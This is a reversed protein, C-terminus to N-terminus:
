KARVGPFLETFAAVLGRQRDLNLHKDIRNLCRSGRKLDEGLQGATTTSCSSSPTWASSPALPGFCYAWGALARWADHPNSQERGKPLGFDWLGEFERGGGNCGHRPTELSTPAAINTSRLPHWKNGGRLSACGGTGGAHLCLMLAVLVQTLLQLFVTERLGGVSQAIAVAM